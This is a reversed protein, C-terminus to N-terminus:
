AAHHPESSRHNHRSPNTGGGPEARATLYRASRGAPLAEVIQREVSLVPNLATMPDQFVMVIGHGRVDELERESLPV